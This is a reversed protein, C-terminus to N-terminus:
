EIVVDDVDDVDDDVVVVVVVIIIIVVVVVDVVVRNTNYNGFQKKCSERAVCKWTLLSSGLLSKRYGCIAETM